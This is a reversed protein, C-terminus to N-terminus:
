AKVEVEVAKGEREFKELTASVEVGVPTTEASESHRTLYHEAKEGEFKTLEQKAHSESYALGETKVKSDVGGIKGILGGWLAGKIYLSEQEWNPAFVESEEGELLLGVTKAEKNLYGLRGKLKWTSKFSGLGSCGEFTMVVGRVESANVFRGQVYGTQGCGYSASGVEWVSAGMRGSFTVPNKETPTPSLEPVTTTFVEDSGDKTGNVNAAVIRFHYTTNPTLGSVVQSVQKFTPSTVTVEPTSKGYSTTTGYEFYYKTEGSSTVMGNLRAEAKSIVTASETKVIPEGSAFASASALASLALVALLAWLATKCKSRM